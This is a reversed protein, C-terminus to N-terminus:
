PALSGVWAILATLDSGADTSVQIRQSAAAATTQPAEVVIEALGPIDPLQKAELVKVDQGNLLIHVPHILAGSSDAIGFGTGFLTLRSGPAAPRNSSNPSGDENVASVVETPFRRFLSPSLSSVPLTASDVVIGNLEVDIQANGTQSVAPPISANVQGDDAYLLPAPVGNVLVRTGGLHTPLPVAAATPTSPGIETGFVTVLENPSIPGAALSANNVVCLRSRAPASAPDFTLVFPNTLDQGEVVLRGSKNRSVASVLFPLSGTNLFSAYLFSTGNPALRALFGTNAGLGAVLNCRELADSTTPFFRSSTTGGVIVSGDSDPIVASVSEGSDGSILTSYIPGSLDPKLKVVFATDLTAKATSGIVSTSPFNRSKTVGGLVPSGDPAIAFSNVSDTNEGGFFASARISADDRSLISVFTRAVPFLTPAAQTWAGPTVPFDASYTSGAAYVEGARAQLFGVSDADSGGLHTFWVSEGSAGDFRGVFGDSSTSGGIYIEDYEDLCLAAPTTSQDYPLIRAFKVDKGNPGVRM